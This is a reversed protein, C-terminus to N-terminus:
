LPEEESTLTEDLSDSALEEEEESSHYARTNESVLDDSRTKIIEGFEIISSRLNNSREIIEL